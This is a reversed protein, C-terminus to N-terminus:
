RKTDVKLYQSLGRAEMNFDFFFLCLVIIYCIMKDDNIRNYKFGTKDSNQVPTMQYFKNLINQLFLPKMNLERAVVEVPKHYSRNKFVKLLFDLYLLTKVKFVVNITKGKSKEFIDNFKVLKDYVFDTYFKLERSPSAENKIIKLAYKINLANWEDLSIISHIDYIKQPTASKLNFDPLFSRKSKLEESMHNEDQEDMKKEIDLAKEQLITQIENTSNINKEQFNFFHDM